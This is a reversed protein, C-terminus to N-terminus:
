SEEWPQKDYDGRAKRAIQVKVSHVPCFQCLKTGPRQTPLGEAKREARTDPLLLKSDAMYDGCDTTRNHRKWCAIADEQYNAKVEYFQGGLGQASGPVGAAIQIKQVIADRHTPKDWDEKAVDALVRSHWTGSPFKHFSDRHILTDDREAPGEFWPLEEVTGCDHCILLRVRDPM